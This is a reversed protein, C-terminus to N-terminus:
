LDRGCAVRDGLLLTYTHIHAHPTRMGRTEGYDEYHLYRALCLYHGQNQAKANPLDQVHHEFKASYIIGVYIFNQPGM